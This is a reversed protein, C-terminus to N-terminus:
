SREELVASWRDLVTQLKGRIEPSAILGDPGVDLHRVEINVCLEEIIQASVFSLVTRLTAYTGAIWGTPKDAMDNGGVTWDLLNKFSGPLTGAYEPTSFVVASSAAIAARLAIVPPPLDSDAIDPDFHPLDSPSAALEVAIHDHGVALDRLTRLVAANTSKARLSGAILLLTPLETSPM